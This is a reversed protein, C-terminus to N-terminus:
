SLSVQAVADHRQGSSIERNWMPSGQVVDYCAIRGQFVIACVQKM